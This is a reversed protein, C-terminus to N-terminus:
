ENNGRIGRKMAEYYGGLVIALKEVQKPSIDIDGTDTMSKQALTMGVVDEIWKEKEETKKLLKLHDIASLEDKM